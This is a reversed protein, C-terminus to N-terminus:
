TALSQGVCYGVEALRHTGIDWKGVVDSAVQNREEWVRNRYDQSLAIILSCQELLLATNREQRETKNMLYQGGFAVFAGAVVGVLGVWADMADTHLVFRAYLPSTWCGSWAVVTRLLWGGGRCARLEVATLLPGTTRM